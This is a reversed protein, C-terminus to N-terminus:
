IEKSRAALRAAIKTETLGAARLARVYPDDKDLARQSVITEAPKSQRAGPFARLGKTLDRFADAGSARAVTLWKERTSALIRGEKVALDVADVAAREAKAKEEEAMKEPDEAPPMARAEAEARLADVQASLEAVRLELAAKEARLAEMDETPKEGEAAEDGTRTEADRAVEVAEVTETPKETETKKAKPMTPSRLLHPSSRLVLGAASESRVATSPTLERNAPNNTLAHGLLRAGRLAGNPAKRAAEVLVSGFAIRGRDFENAVTPWLEAHLFLHTSGDARLVPIAVHAWGNAPTGSDRATGHVPSPAMGDPVAGGDIPLPMPSGNLSDVLENITEADIHGGPFQEASEEGSADLWRFAGVPTGNDRLIPERAPAGAHPVAADLAEVLSSARAAEIGDTSQVVFGTNTEVVRVAPM